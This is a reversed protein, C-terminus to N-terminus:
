ITRSWEVFADRVDSLVALLADIAQVRDPYDPDYMARIRLLYSASQELHAISRKADIQMNQRTTNPM